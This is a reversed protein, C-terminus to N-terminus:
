SLAELAKIDEIDQPRGSLKKMAILDNIELVHISQEGVHKSIVKKHSLDETIIIDLCEIPKDPNVFSWAILNKEQIYHERNEFLDQAKIPLRPQLGFQLLLSETEKFSKQNLTIIIDVDITGRVAGHLAVAYGGVLAYPINANQFAQTIRLLFM